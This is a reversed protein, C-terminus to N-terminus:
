IIVRDRMSMAGWVVSDCDSDLALSYYYVLFGISVLAAGPGDEYVLVVAVGEVFYLVVGLV